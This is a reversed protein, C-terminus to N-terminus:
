SENKKPPTQELFDIREQRAIQKERDVALSEWTEAMRMLQERAKSDGRRALQRCQAAHERYEEVKKM